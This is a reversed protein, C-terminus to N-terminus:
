GHGHRQRPDPRDSGAKVGAVFCGGAKFRQRLKDPDPLDERPAFPDTPIIYPYDSPEIYPLSDLPLRLGVPSDGPTLLLRGARTSWPESVWGRGAKSQWRQVPLVYGTPKGLGHDFVRALRAREMPDDLRANFPDLNQPLQQERNIFHWPDEFAPLAAQPDM